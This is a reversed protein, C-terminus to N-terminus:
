PSIPKGPSNIIKLPTKGSSQRAAASANNPRSILATKRSVIMWRTKEPGGCSRQAAIGSRVRASRHMSAGAIATINATPSQGWSMLPITCPVTICNTPRTLYQAHKGPRDVEGENTGGRNCESGSLARGNRAYRRQERRQGAQEDCNEGYCMVWRSLRDGYRSRGPHRPQPDFVM